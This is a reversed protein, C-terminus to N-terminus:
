ALAATAKCALNELLVQGTLTDDDDHGPLMAGLLRGDVGILPTARHREIREDLVTATIGAPVARRGSERGVVPHTDLASRARDAIDTALAFLGFGDCTALLGLFEDEPMIEGDPAFRGAGVLPHRHWPTSRTALDDVGLNGIFVQNPAYTRAADWDRLHPRLYDIPEKVERLVRLPKSGLRVLCPVHALVLSVARIVPMGNATM